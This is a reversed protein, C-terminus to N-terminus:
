LSTHPPPPHHNRGIVVAPAGPPTAGIVDFDGASLHALYWLSPIQADLHPDNALLPKGTATLTGDVVWNNSGLASGLSPLDTSSAFATSWSDVASSASSASSKKSRRAEADGADEATTLKKGMWALDE